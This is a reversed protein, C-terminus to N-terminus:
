YISLRLLIFFKRIPYGWNFLQYLLFPHHSQNEELRELFFVQFLSWSISLTWLASANSAFQLLSAQPLNVFSLGMRNEIAM